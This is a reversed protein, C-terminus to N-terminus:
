LPGKGQQPRCEMILLQMTQHVVSFKEHHQLEITSTSGDQKLKRYMIIQVYLNRGSILMPQAYYAFKLCLKLFLQYVKSCILISYHTFFNLMIRGVFFKHFRELSLIVALLPQTTISAAKYACLLREEHWITYKM